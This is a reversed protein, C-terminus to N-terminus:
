KKKLDDWFQDAASRSRTRNELNPLKKPKIIHSAQHSFGVRGWSYVRKLFNLPSIIQIRTAIVAGLLIFVSMNSANMGHPQHFFVALFILLLGGSFRLVSGAMFGYIVGLIMYLELTM